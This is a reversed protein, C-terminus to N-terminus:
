DDMGLFRGRPGVSFNFPRGEKRGEIEFPLVGAREEFSRDIRIIKGDGLRERITRQVAAPTEEFSVQVSELRGSESVMVDRTKDGFTVEADFSVAGREFMKYLNGLKGNGVNAEITKRAAAPVEEFAVEVLNLKGDAAVSFFREKGDQRTFEIEYRIENDEFNREVSDIKGDRVQARITAQVAAPTDALNVEISLLTGDEIVTFNHEQGEKTFAVAYTTQGEEEGREIEGIKCGAAQTQIAKQVPAPLQSLSVSKSAEGAFASLGLMVLFPIVLVKTKM